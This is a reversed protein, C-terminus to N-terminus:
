PELGLLQDPVGKRPDSKAGLEVLKRCTTPISQGRDLLKAYADDYHKQADKLAKEIGTFKEMFIGVRKLMEDALAFVKEHNEAQAIQTWTMSIIRLAAYLTQEDAIYVNQEMAKRWLEPRENTALFLAASNPVFMIVYGMRVKPPQVYSSYDKAALEKVHRQLSDIHAKLANRRGEESEANVYDLYNSLSVKADIIVDRERDLHLIVDPILRSNDDSLIARGRSDTMAMQTDFHVGETLGQSELLETLVTEGWNGQVKGGRRLADALRDASNRAAVSQRIMEQINTNIRVGGESHEKTNEAVAEKMQRINEQLPQLIRNVGEQSAAQFETQREKLMRGTANELQEKMAKVTEDFRKQMSELLRANTEDQMRLAEAQTREKEELRAQFNKDKEALASEFSREKESLTTQFVREKEALAAQFSREKETLLTKAERASGRGTLWGGIAGLIIGVLIYLVIEM